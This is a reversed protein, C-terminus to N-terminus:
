PQSPIEKFRITVSGSSIQLADVKYGPTGVEFDMESLSEIEPYRFLEYEKGPEGGTFNLVIRNRGKGTTGAPPGILIGEGQVAADGLAFTFTAGKQLHLTHLTLTGQPEFRGYVTGFSSVVADVTGGGRLLTAGTLHLSMEPTGGQPTATPLGIRADAPLEIVGSESRFHVGPTVCEIGGALTLTGSGQKLLEAAPSHVEFTKELKLSAEPFIRFPIKAGEKKSTIMPANIRAHQGQSVTIGAGEAWLIMRCNANAADIVTTGSGEEFRLGFPDIAQELVVSQDPSNFIFVSGSLGLKPHFNTKENLVNSEEGTWRLRKENAAEVGQACAITMAAAM